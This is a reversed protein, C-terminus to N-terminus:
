IYREVKSKGKKEYGDGFFKLKFGTNVKEEANELADFAAATPATLITM